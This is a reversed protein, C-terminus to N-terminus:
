KMHLKGIGGRRRGLWGVERDVKGLPCRTPIDELHNDNVITDELTEVETVFSLNQGEEPIM